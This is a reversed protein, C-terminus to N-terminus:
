FMKRIEKEAFNGVGILLIGESLGEWRRVFLYYVVKMNIFIVNEFARMM